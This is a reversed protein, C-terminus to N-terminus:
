KLRIVVYLWSGGRYVHLLLDDGASLKNVLTDFEARSAVKDRNVATVIDGSHLAGAAESGPEIRTVVVGKIDASLRLQARMRQDLPQVNFGLNTKSKADKSKEPAKQGDSPMEGIKIKLTRNKGDRYVDFKVIKGPKIGAVSAALDRAEELAEGGVSVIVDGSQFGGDAAPSGDSVDAVIAGTANEKMGFAMALGPTLPQYAIGLWGRVVRGGDSLSEIIGDALNSPIAFGIGQGRPAIATNIGIVEGSLNFLPGGSNGPNISADTQIFNDYPGAGIVREKASVIGATVTHDLGFPNGIAVVHDGVMIKSSDGFSVIPLNKANELELLAVDTRQDSGVLRANFKRNDALQVEIEDGNAVVHHNTVVLGGPSIIFGSGIGERKREPMQNPRGRPGFFWEFMNRQAGGRVKATVRVNVVAPAVKVVLPALSVRPDYTTPTLPAKKNGKAKNRGAPAAGCAVAAVLMAAIVVLWGRNVINPKNTM